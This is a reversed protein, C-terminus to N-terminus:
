LVLSSTESYFNVIWDASNNVNTSDVSKSPVLYMDTKVGSNANRFATVDSRTLMKNLVGPSDDYSVSPDLHITSLKGFVFGLIDKAQANKVLSLMDNFNIPWKVPSSGFVPIYFENAQDSDSQVVYIFANETPKLLDIKGSTNVNLGYIASLKADQTFDSKATNLVEGVKEKATIESNTVENVLDEPNCGSLSILILLLFSNFYKMKHTDLKLLRKILIHSM